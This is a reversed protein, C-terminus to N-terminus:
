KLKLMTYLDCRLVTRLDGGEEDTILNHSLVMSALRRTMNDPSNNAQEWLFANRAPVDLSNVIRLRLLSEKLEPYLEFLAKDDAMIQDLRSEDITGTADFETVALLMEMRRLYYQELADDGLVHSFIGALAMYNYIGALTPQMKGKRDIVSILERLFNRPMPQVVIKKVEGEDDLSGEYLRGESYDAMLAAFAEDREFTEYTRGAIAGQVNGEGVLAVIDAVIYDNLRLLPTNPERPIFMTVGGRTICLYQHQDVRSVVVLNRVSTDLTEQNFRAINKRMSFIINGNPDIRQVTARLLYPKGTAPDHFAEQTVHVNYSVIQKAPNITGIGWYEDDEIRCLFEHPTTGPGTIRITVEDGPQPTRRPHLTRCDADPARFLSRYIENWMQQCRQLETLGEVPAPLDHTLLVSLNVSSFIGEPLVNHVEHDREAPELTIDHGLVKLQVGNNRYGLAEGAKGNLPPISDALNACLTHIDALSTWSYGLNRGFSGFLSEYAKSNLSAVSEAEKVLMSAYSFLMSQYIKYDSDAESERRGLMLRAALLRVMLELEPSDPPLLVHDTEVRMREIFINLLELMPRTFLSMFRSNEHQDRLVAFLDEMYERSHSRCMIVISRVCRMRNQHNLIYGSTRLHRLIRLVYDCGTGDAMMELASLHDRGREVIGGLIKQYEASEAEASASLYSSTELLNVCLGVLTRLLETKHGCRGQILEDVRTDALKLANLVWLPNGDYYQRRVGEFAESEFLRMIMRRDAGDAPALDEVKQLDFFPISVGRMGTAPEMEVRVMNMFTIRCRVMQNNYFKEDGYNVLRFCFDNEDVVEYYGRNGPQSKVRFDGVDGVKYLRALLTAIDQMFAPKGHESVGKCLCYIEDPMKKKQFEYAKVTYEAGNADILFYTTAGSQRKGRVKFMYKNGKEFNM